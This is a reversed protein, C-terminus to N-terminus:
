LIVQSFKFLKVYAVNSMGFISVIGDAVSMVVGIKTFAKNEPFPNKNTANTM